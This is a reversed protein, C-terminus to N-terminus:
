RSANDYALMVDMSFSAASSLRKWCTSTSSGETCVATVMKLSSARYYKRSANVYLGKFYTSM